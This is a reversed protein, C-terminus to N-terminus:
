EPKSSVRFNQNMFSYILPNVYSSSMALFHITLFTYTFSKEHLHERWLVIIKPFFDIVLFFLHLPFWCIAFVLVIVVLM